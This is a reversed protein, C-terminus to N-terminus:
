VIAIDPPLPHALHWGRAQDIPGALVPCWAAAPLCGVRIRAEGRRGALIRRDVWVPLIPAAHRDRGKDKTPPATTHHRQDVLREVPGIADIEARRHAGLCGCRRDSLDPLPPAARERHQWEAPAVRGVAALG